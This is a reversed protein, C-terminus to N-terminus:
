MRRFSNCILGKSRNPCTTGCIECRRMAPDHAPCYDKDPHVHVACKECLPMDCTKGNPRIGDCLKTSPRGCIACQKGTGRTCIFGTVVAGDKMTQKFQFCPM